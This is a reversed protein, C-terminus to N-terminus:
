GASLDAELREADADDAGGAHAQRRRNWAWRGLGLLWGAAAVIATMWRGAPGSVMVGAYSLVFGALIVIAMGLAPALALRDPWALRLLGFAWGIGTAFVVAFAAAVWRVFESRSPPTLPAPAEIAGEPRPGRLLMIGPAIEADPHSRRLANYGQYFPKIAMVVTDDSLWPELLDWYTRSTEDFGALDSRTAPRRDFLAEPDGLYTAINPAYWGPAFARIRRFARVMGYDVLKDDERQVAFVVRREPVTATLYALATRITERESDLVMPRTGDLSRRATVSQTGIATVVAIVALAALVGGLVGRPTSALRILGAGAAAALLPVPLAVAALRMVPLPRGVAFLVVGIAIPALWTAYLLLGRRRASRPRQFWMLAAGAAAVPLTYALRYWPLLRDVNRQFPGRDATSFLHAGPTAVLAGVGVAGAAAAVFGISASPTRTWRRGARIEAISSPLLTLAYLGLVGVFFFGIPWHMLVAGGGLLAGATVGRGGRALRIAIAASAILLGDVLANDLHSRATIAFPLSTAVIAAYLPAAWRPEAVSRALAWSAFGLVIAGLPAAIFMLRWPGIDAVSGLVSGLIPLGIRDPNASNAHYEFPSSGYLGPMGLAHVVRSRWLHSPTDVGIPVSFRAAVQYSLILAAAGAAVVAVALFTALERVPEWRAAPTGPGAPEADDGDRTPETQV